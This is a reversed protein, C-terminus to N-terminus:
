WLRNIFLFLLLLINFEIGDSIFLTMSFLSLRYSMLIDCASYRLLKAPTKGVGDWTPHQKFHYDWLWIKNQGKFGSPGFWLEGTAERWTSRNSKKGKLNFFPISGYFNRWSPPEKLLTYGVCVFNEWLFLLKM